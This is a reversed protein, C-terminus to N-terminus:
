KKEKLRREADEGSHKNNTGVYNAAAKRGSSAPAALRGYHSEGSIAAAAGSTSSRRATAASDGKAPGKARRKPARRTKRAETGGLMRASTPRPKLSLTAAFVKKCPAVATHVVAAVEPLGLGVRAWRRAVVSRCM